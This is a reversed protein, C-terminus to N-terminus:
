EDPVVVKCDSPAGLQARLVSDVRINGEHAHMPAQNGMDARAAILEVYIPQFPRRALVRYRSQLGFSARGVVWYLNAEGCPTFTNLQNGGLYFGRHTPQVREAERQCGTVILACLLAAARSM